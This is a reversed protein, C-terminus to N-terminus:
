WSFRTRNHSWCIRHQGKSIKWLCLCLVIYDRSSLTPMRVARIFCISVKRMIFIIRGSFILSRRVSTISCIGPLILRLWFRSLWYRFMSFIPKIPRKPCYWLCWCFTCCCVARWYRIFCLRRWLLPRLTYLGWCIWLRSSSCWWCWCMLCCRLGFFCYGWGNPPNGCSRSCFRRQLIIWISLRVRREQLDQWFGFFCIRCYLSCYRM